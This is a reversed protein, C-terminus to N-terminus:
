IRLIHFIPMLMQNRLDLSFSTENVAIDALITSVVDKKTVGKIGDNLLDYIYRFIPNKNDGLFFPSEGNIALSKLSKASSRFLHSFTM